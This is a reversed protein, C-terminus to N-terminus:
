NWQRRAPGLHGGSPQRENCTSEHTDRVTQYTAVVGCAPRVLRKPEMSRVDEGASAARDKREQGGMM